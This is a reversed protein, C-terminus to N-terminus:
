RGRPTVIMTGAKNAPSPSNDIVPASESNSGNGTVTTGTSSGDNNRGYATIVGTEGTTASSATTPESTRLRAVPAVKATSTGTINETGTVSGSTPTTPYNNQASAAFGILIVASLLLTRM